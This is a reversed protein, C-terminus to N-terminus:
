LDKEEVKDGIYGIGIFDLYAILEKSRELYHRMGEGAENGEERYFEVVKQRNPTQLTGLITFCMHLNNQVMFDMRKTKYFESLSAEEVLEGPVTHLFLNYGAITDLLRDWLVPIQLELDLGDMYLVTSSIDRILQIIGKYYETIDELTDIKSIEENAKKLREIVADNSTVEEMFQQFQLNDKDM